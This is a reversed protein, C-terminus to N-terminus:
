IPEFEEKRDKAKQVYANKVIDLKQDESIKDAQFESEQEVLRDVCKEIKNRVAHDVWEYPDEVQWEFAKMEEDTITIEFKKM